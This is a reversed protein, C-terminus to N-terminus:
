IVNAELAQLLRVEAGHDEAEAHGDVGRYAYQRLALVDDLSLNSLPVALELRGSGVYRDMQVDELGESLPQNGMTQGPGPLYEGLLEAVAVGTTFSASGGPHAAM